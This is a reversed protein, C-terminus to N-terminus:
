MRTVAPEASFAFTAWVAVIGLVAASLAPWVPGLTVRGARGLAWVALAGILFGVLPLGVFEVGLTIGAFPALVFPLCTAAFGWLAGTVVTKTDQM